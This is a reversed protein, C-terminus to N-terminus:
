YVQTYFEDFVMAPSLGSRLLDFYDIGALFAKIAPWDAHQFDYMSVVRECVPTNYIVDFGVSCHDSTSFPSM